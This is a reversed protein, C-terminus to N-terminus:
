NKTLLQELGALDLLKVHKREVILLNYEQFQTFLRSVTEVALGLM